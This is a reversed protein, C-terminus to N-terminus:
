LIDSHDQLIKNLLAKEVIKSIHSRVVIPRIDSTSVIDKGKEKSLPVLRGENLYYPLYNANM